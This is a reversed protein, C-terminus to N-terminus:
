DGMTRLGDMVIRLHQEALTAVDPLSNADSDFTDCILATLIVPALISFAQLFPDGPRIEGRAQGQEVWETVSEILPAVVRQQWGRSLDPFTHAEVLLLRAIKLVDPESLASAASVVRETLECSTVSDVKAISTVGISEVVARFLEEKNLYYRYISGKVLGARQAIEDISAGGFGREAFVRLAASRIESPRSDKRRTQSKRERTQSMIRCNWFSAGQIM